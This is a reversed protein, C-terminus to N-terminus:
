GESFSEKFFIMLIEVHVLDNSTKRSLKVKSSKPYQELSYLENPFDTDKFVLQNSMRQSDMMIKMTEDNM